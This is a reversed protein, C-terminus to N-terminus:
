PILKMEMGALMAGSERSYVTIEVQQGASFNWPGVPIQGNGSTGDNIEMQTLTGGEPLNGWQCSDCAQGSNDAVPVGSASVDVWFSDSNGDFGTVNGIFDYNGDAPVTFTFTASEPGPGTMSTTTATVSGDGNDTWPGVLAADTAAQVLPTPAPPVYPGPKGWLQNNNGFCEWQHIEGGPNTSVGKVDLCLNPFARYSGDGPDEFSQGVDDDDCPQGQFPVANSIDDDKLGICLGDIMIRVEGTNLDKDITVEQSTSGNCTQQRLQHPPANDFQLCLNSHVSTLQGTYDPVWNRTPTAPPTSPAPTPPAVAGGGSLVSGGAAANRTPRPEAVATGTDALFDSSTRNLSEIAGLSVVVLAALVLAYSTLTVGAQRQKQVSNM